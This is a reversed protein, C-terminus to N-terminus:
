KLYEQIRQIGYTLEIADTAVEFVDSARDLNSVVVVVDGENFAEIAAHRVDKVFSFLIGGEPSEHVFSPVAGNEDFLDLLTEALEFAVHTPAPRDNDRDGPSTHKLVHLRARIADRPHSVVGTRLVIYNAGDSVTGHPKLSQTVTYLGLARRQPGWWSIARELRAETPTM